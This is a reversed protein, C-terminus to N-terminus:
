KSAPEAHRQAVIEGSLIPNTNDFFQYHGPKLPGLSVTASGDPAIVKDVRLSRSQLEATLRATNNVKLQFNRGAPVHVTAPSFGHSSIVITRTIAVNGALATGAGTLLCCAMLATLSLKRALSFSLRGTLTVSRM